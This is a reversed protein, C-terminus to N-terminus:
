LSSMSKMKVRSRYEEPLRAIAKEVATWAEDETFYFSTDYHTVLYWLIADLRIASKQTREYEIAVTQTLHQDIRTLSAEIDPIHEREPEFHELARYTRFWHVIYNPNTEISRWVRYMGLPHYIREASRPEWYAYPLDAYRMGPTTAWVVAPKGYEFKKSKVYHLKELRDFIDQATRLSVPCGRYKGLEWCFDDMSLTGFVGIRRMIEYDRSTPLTRGKDSRTKRRTSQTSM